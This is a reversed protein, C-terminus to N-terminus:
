ENNDGATREAGTDDNSNETPLQSSWEPLVPMDLSDLLINRQSQQQIQQNRIQQYKEATAGRLALDDRLITPRIFVLLNTKQVSSSNSRFLRGLGPVDGLLPIKSESQIINDRILGGLVVIEGDAVTVRTEIKRENTILDVAGARQSISSIEQNIDLAVNNGQNVHPTVRLTTGVNERTITQFPNDVNGNSNAGTYSGTVFPVNEGVTIVAESNDTTLINPTSLINAGSTAQLMDVLALLDNSSGIRGIGITQGATAALGAALSTLGEERDENLAGEAIQGLQTLNNGAEFSSAFAGSDDRFLWQIGLNQGTDDNIEVIIAEVLVQARQIDLRHVVDMLSEIIDMDATIILANNDPDAEISAQRVSSNNGGSNEGQNLNFTNEVVQGLVGALREANAYELYVVRTNGTQERPRDLQEVLTRLQERQRASGSILVSNTRPDANIGLRNVSGEEAPTSRRGQQMERVLEVVDTAIAFKLSVIETEPAVGQDLQALVERIRRVNSATDVLLLMNGDPFASMQGNSQSVLPRLVPLVDNVAINDLRITETVYGSNQGRGGQVSQGIPLAASRAEQSPLISVLGPETEVATFGALDLARLFIDYYSDADVAQNSMVTITGTVRPDVVMTKGTVDQVVRIVEMIDSDRFNPTWTIIEQAVTAGSSMKIVAVLFLQPLFTRKLM